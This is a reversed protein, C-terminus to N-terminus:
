LIVLSSAINGGFLASVGPLGISLLAMGIVWRAVSGSWHLRGGLLGIVIGILSCLAIFPIYTNILSDTVQVILSDIPLLNFRASVAYAPLTRLLMTGLTVGIGVSKRSLM